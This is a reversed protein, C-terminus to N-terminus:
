ALAASLEKENELLKLFSETELYKAFDDSEVSPIASGSVAAPAPAAAVAPAVAEPKKGSVASKIKYVCVLGFYGGLIAIAVAAFTSLFYCGILQTFAYM